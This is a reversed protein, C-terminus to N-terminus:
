ERTVKFILSREGDPSMWYGSYNLGDYEGMFMGTVNGDVKETLTLQGDEFDGELEIPRENKTYYYNGKYHAGYNLLNMVIEYKGDIYGSFVDAGELKPASSRDRHYTIKYKGSKYVAEKVHGMGEPIIESYLRQPTSADTDFGYIVYERKGTAPDVTIMTVSQYFGNDFEDYYGLSELKLADRDKFEAVLARRHNRTYATGMLDEDGYLVRDLIDFDEKDMLSLADVYGKKGGVNVIAWLSDGGIVSVEGGYDIVMIPEALDYEDPEELLPTDFFYVYKKGIEKESNGLSFILILAAIAVIAGGIIYWKYKDWASPEEPEDIEDSIKPAPPVPAPEPDIVEVIEEVVIVPVPNGCSGCFKSGPTLPNGCHSCFGGTAGAPQQMVPAAQVPEGRMIRNWGWIRFILQMISLVLLTLGIIVGLFIYMGIYGKLGMGGSSYTSNMISQFTSLGVLLGIVFIILPMFQLWINYTASKRLLTAGQQAKSNWAPETELDSFASRFMFYSVTALIWSTFRLLWAVMWPSLAAIFSVAIAILGVWCANNVRKVGNVASVSTQGDRFKYLGILYMVWGCLTFFQTISQLSYFNNLYEQITDMGTLMGFQSVNDMLGQLASAIGSFYEFIGALWGFVTLVVISWFIMTSWTRWESRKDM